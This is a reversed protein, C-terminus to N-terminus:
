NNTFDTHANKNEGKKKQAFCSCLVFVAKAGHMKLIRSCENVTASTTYIDDVLCITKGSVDYAPNVSFASKVMYSRKAYDMKSLPKLDKPKILTDSIAPIGALHSLEKAIIDAQNYERERSPHLPVPCIFSVENIFERNKINEYITWAFTKALHKIGRFKFDSMASKVNDTYNLSCIAEEFYKGTDRIVTLQDSLKYKCENCISLGNGINVFSNCVICRKPYFVDLVVNSILNATNCLRTKLNM